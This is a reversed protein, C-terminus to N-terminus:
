VQLVTILLHARDHLFRSGPVSIDESVGVRRLRNAASDVVSHMRNFMGVQDIRGGRRMDRGSASKNYGGEDGVIREISKPALETDGFYAKRLEAFHTLGPQM